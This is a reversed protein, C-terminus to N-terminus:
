LENGEWENQHMGQLVNMNKREREGKGKDGEKEIRKQFM